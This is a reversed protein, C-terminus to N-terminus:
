CEEKKPKEIKDAWLNYYGRFFTLRCYFRICEGKEVVLANKNKAYIKFKKNENRVIYSVSDKGELIDEIKGELIIYVIRSAGGQWIELDSPDELEIFSFNKFDGIEYSYKGIAHVSMTDKRLIKDNLELVLDITEEKVPLYLKLSINKKSENGTIVLLECRM